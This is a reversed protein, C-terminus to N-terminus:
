LEALGGADGRCESGTENHQLPKKQRDRTTDERWSINVQNNLIIERLKSTIDTQDQSSTLTAEM